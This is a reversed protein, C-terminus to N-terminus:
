LRGGEHHALWAIGVGMLVLPPISMVILWEWGLAHIVVGSLLSVLAMVGFILFDNCAQVKFRESSFYTHALLTTGSVFLFNWGVGLLVLALWYHILEHSWLAMGVCLVFCGLGVTMIRMVGYHSILHGSVLAPMYMAMVHSQIVWATDDMTHGDVVHMSVPTATMIFAMVGYGVVGAAIAVILVPERLLERLPRGGRMVREGHSEVDRILALIVVSLTLAVALALFSGAYPALGAVDRARKAMEPGLWAAVISGVLVFAIAKSIYAPAVSEAAAYRYQQAFAINAGLILAALCFLLFDESEIAWAALLAALTGAVAALVFGNRRGIRQMLLAAPVTTLATGIVLISIPLTGLAPDPAMETGVIGGILVTIVSSSATLAQAIALLIVNRNRM